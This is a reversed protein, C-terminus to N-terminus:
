NQNNDRKNKYFDSAKKDKRQMQSYDQPINGDKDLRTLNYSNGM